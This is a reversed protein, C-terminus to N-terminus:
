RARRRRWIVLCGLGAVLLVLTAPEPATTVFAHYARIEEASLATDFLAVGAYQAFLSSDWHTDGIKFGPLSNRMVDGATASVTSFFEGNRYFDVEVTHSGTGQLGTLVVALHQWTNPVIYDNSSLLQVFSSPGTAVVVIGRNLLNQAPNHRYQLYWGERSGSSPANDGIMERWDNVNGTPKVFFSLTLSDLADLSELDATSLLDGGHDILLSANDYGPRLLPTPGSVVTTDSRLTADGPAGLYGHNPVVTGTADTFRFDLAPVPAASVM